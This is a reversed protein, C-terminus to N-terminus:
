RKLYRMIQEHELKKNPDFLNGGLVFQKRDCSILDSKNKLKSNCGYNRECDLCLDNM